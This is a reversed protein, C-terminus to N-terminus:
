YAQDAPEEVSGAMERADEDLPRETGDDDELGGIWDAEELGEALARAMAQVNTKGAAEAKPGPTSVPREKGTTDKAKHPGLFEVARYSVGGANTKASSGVLVMYSWPAKTTDRVWSKILNDLAQGAVFGTSKFVLKGPLWESPAGNYGPVAIYGIVAITVACDTKGPKRLDDPVACELVIGEKTVAKFNKPLFGRDGPRAKPNRGPGYLCRACDTTPECDEPFEWGSLVDEMKKSGKIPKKETRALLGQNSPSQIGGPVIASFNGKEADWFGACLVKSKDVLADFPNQRVQLHRIASVVFLFPAEPDSTIPRPIKGGLAWTGPAFGATAHLGSNTILLLVRPIRTSSPINEVTQVGQSSINDEDFEVVGTQGPIMLSVDAM